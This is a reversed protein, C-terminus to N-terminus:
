FLVRGLEASDTLTGDLDLVILVPRKQLPACLGAACGSIVGMSSMMSMSDRRGRLSM